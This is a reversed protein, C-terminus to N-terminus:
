LSEETGHNRKVGKRLRIRLELRRFRIILRRHRRKAALAQRYVDLLNQALTECGKGEVSQRTSRRLEALKDPPMDRIARIKEAMDAADRFIFGNVGDRVQGENLPDVVQLVPLGTAMGELMSISNTDSTSATIYFDCAGVYPPMEEHPVKGAFAVMESIGLERAEAELEERCPGDGIVLLRLGEEPRITEKWYRLLLDVSKDRGLRGTFVGVTLDPGYGFKERFARKKEPDIADPDFADLEVPNPIIHVHKYVGIGRLYAACKESPGTLAQASKALLKIYEHSLRKAAPALAEPAVYYIYEDYMTHLTYVLAVGLTKAIMMGSVGVGFEQHVHIVDPKFANVYRLRTSSLPAAIGYGYFKKSTHAPCHLVGDAVYHRRADADATVVLVEHGLRILGERLASVHTVVGNIHPLYTEAFLAIRM